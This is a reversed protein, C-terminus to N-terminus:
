PRPDLDVAAGLVGPGCDGFVAWEGGDGWIRGGVRQGLRQLSAASGYIQM